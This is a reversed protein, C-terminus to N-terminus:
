GYLSEPDLAKGGKLVEFHLHPGTSRGTSGVFAIAQSTSVIDGEKVINEANHGYRTVLGDDHLIEVMNGYGGKKGSFIVKGSSAPYVPTGSEAAIDMGHHFRTHGTFPDARDGFGSSVRSLDKLPFSFKSPERTPEAAPLPVARVTSGEIAAAQPTAQEGHAVPDAVSDSLQKLLMEALGIGGSHAMNKSLEADLMSTYIDEAKGGHFLESKGITERMSKLMQNIFLSEFDAVARRLEKQGDRAAGKPAEAHSSYASVPNVSM